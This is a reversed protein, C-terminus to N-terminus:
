KFTHVDIGNLNIKFGSSDINWLINRDKKFIEEWTVGRQKYSQASVDKPRDTSNQYHYDKLLGEAILDYVRDKWINSGFPILYFKGKHEYVHAGHCFIQTFLDWDGYLEALQRCTDLMYHNSLVAGLTADELEENKLAQKIKKNEVTFEDKTLEDLLSTNSLNYRDRFELMFEISLRRLRQRVKELGKLGDEVKYADYLKVSM